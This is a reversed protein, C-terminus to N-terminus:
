TLKEIIEELEDRSLLYYRSGDNGVKYVDDEIKDELYEVFPSKM